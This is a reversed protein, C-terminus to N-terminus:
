KRESQTIVKVLSNFNYRWLDIDFLSIIKKDTILHKLEDFYNLYYSVYRQLGTFLDETKIFDNITTNDDINIATFYFVDEKKHYKIKIRCRDNPSFSAEKKYKYTYLIGAILGSSIGGEEMWLDINSQCVRNIVIGGSIIPSLITKNAYDSLLEPKLLCYKGEQQKIPIYIYFSVEEM